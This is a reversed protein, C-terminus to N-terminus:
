AYMRFWGLALAIFQRTYGHSLGDLFTYSRTSPLRHFLSEITGPTCTKDNGAATLLVPMTLRAAHSLTDIFGLARWGKAADRLQRLGEDIMGFSQAEKKALPFNTLFPVDAAVCRCGRDRFLSGLLLSCGGGQSSGFFSVRGPLVTDQTWAWRVATVCNALWTKYGEQAGSQVTNYLVPWPDRGQKKSEDYGQPTAYGLPNIHIVNFGQAALEPHMSMEAGYGPTHALLPAPGSPAPQWYAWFPEMGEPAFRIYRFAGMHNVHARAQHGEEVLPTAQCESRHGLAWIDDLWAEIEHESPYWRTESMDEVTPQMDDGKRRHPRRGNM